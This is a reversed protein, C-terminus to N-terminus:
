RGENEPPEPVAEGKSPDVRGFSPWPFEPEPSGTSGEPGPEPPSPLRQPQRGRLMVSCVWTKEDGPMDTQGHLLRQKRNVISRFGFTDTKCVTTKGVVKIQFQSEVRVVNNGPLGPRDAWIAGKRVLEEYRGFGPPNNPKLVTENHPRLTTVPNRGTAPPPVAGPTWGPFWDPDDIHWITAQQPQGIVWARQRIFQWYTCSSPNDTVEVRAEFTYGLFDQGRGMQHEAFVPGLVRGGGQSFPMAPLNGDYSGGRVARVTILKPECADADIEEGYYVPPPTDRPDDGDDDRRGSVLRQGLLGVGFLPWYLGTATMSLQMNSLNLKEFLSPMFMLRTTTALTNTVEWGFATYVASGGSPADALYLVSGREDVSPTMVTGSEQDEVGVYSGHRYRGYTFANEDRETLLKSGDYALYTPTTGGQGGIMLVREGSGIYGWEHTTDPSSTKAFAAKTVWDRQDYSFYASQASGGQRASTMRRAADHAFYTGPDSM